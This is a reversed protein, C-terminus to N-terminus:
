TSNRNLGDNSHDRHDAGVAATVSDYGESRSCVHHGSMSFVFM